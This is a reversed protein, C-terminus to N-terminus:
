SYVGLPSLHITALFVAFDELIKYSPHNKETGELDALPLTFNKRDSTRRLNVLIGYNEDPEDNFGIIKYTDM